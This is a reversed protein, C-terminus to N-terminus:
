FEDAQWPMGRELQTLHSNPLQHWNIRILDQCIRSRFIELPYARAYIVIHEHFLFSIRILKDVHTIQMKHFIM